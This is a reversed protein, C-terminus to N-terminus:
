VKPKWIHPNPCSDTLLMVLSLSISSSNSLRRVWGRSSSLIVISSKTVKSSLRVVYVPWIFVLKISQCCCARSSAILSTTRPIELVLWTTFTTESSSSSSWSSLVERCRVVDSANWCRSSKSWKEMISFSAVSAPSIGSTVTVIIFNDEKFCLLILFIKKFDQIVFYLIILTYITKIKKRGFIKKASNSISKAM